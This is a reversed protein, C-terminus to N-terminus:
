QKKGRKRTGQSENGKVSTTEAASATAPKTHSSSASPAAKPQAPKTKTTFHLLNIVVSAFAGTLVVLLWRPVLVIVNYIKTMAIALYDLVFERSCKTLTLRCRLNSSCWNCVQKWWTWLRIEM